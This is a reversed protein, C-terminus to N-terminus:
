LSDIFDAPTWLRFGAAFPRLMSREVPPDSFEPLRSPLQPVIKVVNVLEDLIDAIAIRQRPPNDAEVLAAEQPFKTRLTRAAEEDFEILDKLEAVVAEHTDADVFRLIDCLMFAENLCGEASTRWESVVDVVAAALAPTALIARLSDHVNPLERMRHWARMLWRATEAVLSERDEDASDVVEALLRSLTPHDPDFDVLWLDFGSLLLRRLLRQRAAPARRAIRVIEVIVFRSVASNHAHLLANRLLRDVSRLDENELCNEVVTATAACISCRSWEIARADPGIPFGHASSVLDGLDTLTALPNTPRLLNMPLGRLELMALTSVGPQESDLGLLWEGPDDLELLLCQLEDLELLDTLEALSLPALIEALSSRLHGDRARGPDLALFRVRCATLQETRVLTNLEEFVAAHEDALWCLIPTGLSNLLPPDERGCELLRQVIRRSLHGPFYTVSPWLAHAFIAAFHAPKGGRTLGDTLRELLERSMATNYHFCRLLADPQGSEYDALVGEALRTLRPTDLLEEQRHSRDRLLLALDAPDNRTIVDDLEDFQSELPFGHRGTGEFSAVVVTAAIHISQPDPSNVLWRTDGEALLYLIDLRQGRTLRNVLESSRLDDSHLALAALEERRDDYMRQTDGLMQELERFNPMMGVQQRFRILAQRLLYAEADLLCDTTSLEVGMIDQAYRELVKSRLLGDLVYGDFLVNVMRRVIKHLMTPPDPDTLFHPLLAILANIETDSEAARWQTVVRDLLPGDPGRDPRFVHSLLAFIGIEVCALSYVPLGSRRDTVKTIFGASRLVGFEFPHVTAFAMPAHRMTHMSSAALHEGLCRLSSQTDEDARAFLKAVALGVDTNEIDPRHLVSQLGPWRFLRLYPAEFISLDAQPYIRHLEVDAFAGLEVVRVPADAEFRISGDERCLLDRIVELDAAVCVHCNARESRGVYDLLRHLDTSAENADVLVLVPDPGSRAELFGVFVHDPSTQAIGFHEVCASLSDGTALVAAGHHSHLLDIIAQTKGCRPPSTLLWISRDRTEMARAMEVVVERPTASPLAVCRAAAHALLTAVQDRYTPTVALLRQVAARQLEASLSLAVSELEQESADVVVVLGERWSYLEVDKGNTVIGFPALPRVAGMYSGVQAADDANLAHGPRKAEVVVLVHSSEADCILFDARGSVGSKARSDIKVVNTGFRVHLYSEVKIEINRHTFVRRLTPLLVDALM